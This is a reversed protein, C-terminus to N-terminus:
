GSVPRTNLVRALLVRESYLPVTLKKIYNENFVFFSSIILWRETSTLTLSEQSRVVMVTPLTDSACTKLKM